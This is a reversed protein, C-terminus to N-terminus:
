PSARGRRGGWFATKPCPIAVAIAHYIAALVEADPARYAWAPRSAMALLAEADLAEGLGITFLLVGRGKAEGAVTIAETPLPLRAVAGTDTTETLM